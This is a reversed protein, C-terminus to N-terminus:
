HTRKASLVGSRSRPRIPTNRRRSPEAECDKEIPEEEEAELEKDVTRPKKESRPNGGASGPPIRGGKKMLYTNM